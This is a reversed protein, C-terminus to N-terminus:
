GALQRGVQLEATPVPWAQSVRNARELGAFDVDGETADAAHTAEGRTQLVLQNAEFRKRYQQGFLM